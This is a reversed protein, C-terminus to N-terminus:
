LNNYFEHLCEINYHWGAIFNESQNFPLWKRDSCIISKAEQYNTQNDNLGLGFAKKFSWISMYEDEGEKYFGESIFEIQM